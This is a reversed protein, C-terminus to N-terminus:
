VDVVAGEVPVGGDFRAELEAEAQRVGGKFIPIAKLDLGRTVAGARKDVWTDGDDLTTM